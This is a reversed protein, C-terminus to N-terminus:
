ARHARIIRRPAGACGREGDAETSRAQRLGGCIALIRGTSELSRAEKLLNAAMAPDGERWLSIADDSRILASDADRKRKKDILAHYKKELIAQTDDFCVVQWRFPPSVAARVLELLQVNGLGDGSPLAFFDPVRESKGRAWALVPAQADNPVELALVPYGRENLPALLSAVLAPV